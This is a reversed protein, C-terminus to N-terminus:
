LECVIWFLNCLFFWFCYFSCIRIWWCWGMRLFLFECWDGYRRRDRDRFNLEARRRCRRFNWWRIGDCLDWDLCVWWVWVMCRCFDDFFYWYKYGFCCMCVNVWRIRFAVCKLCVRGSVSSLWWWFGWVICWDICELCDVLCWGLVVWDVRCWSCRWWFYCCFGACRRRSRTGSSSKRCRCCILWVVECMEFWVVCVFWWWWWYSIVDCERM